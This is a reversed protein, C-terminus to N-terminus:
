MNSHKRYWSRHNYWNVSLSLIVFVACAISAGNSAFSLYIMMEAFYHPCYMARFFIHNPPFKKADRGGAARHMYLAKHCIFQIMNGAFWSSFNTNTNEVSLTVATYFTYGVIYALVHMKSEKSYPFLILQEVLRRVLHAVLFVNVSARHIACNLGIAFVYFHFFWYKPVQWSSKKALKGHLTVSALRPSTAALASVSMMVWFVMLFNDDIMSSLCM